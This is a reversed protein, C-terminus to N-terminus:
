KENRLHSNKKGYRFYIVMGIAMWVFLRIWTDLPLFAMMGFCTLIGMVPVFPVWPTKFSRPADPNTKRMILIGACVIVFALLTGISTMEGVVNIPVFAAFIAIFICFLINSKWPTLFRPHVESFIKPLLGDKSMSFFVRSQGLLDVLIVSTYGILIAIIVLQSLWNYPTNQIAIAVPAANNKFASYHALGTLVHAFLVFLITCVVLSGIIGVPMNKQPNKTEQAATAIIDFGLFVFFVVGAGRLIGSWGFEGFTGTNEPIYPHYNAPQIYKWGLAIFVLVVAVKLSVVVSSWLASGKTGRILILSMLIVVLAAPLNFYTQVVEGSALTVTEFPSHLIQPPLYIDYYSLLKTLYNSWSIAVTAAGVSFELVLDWGIIWAIMEGLTAYAYTYASGAVPIMASFEAYCLGAFGCGVAAVLFSLTVAPGANNAAALGTLSFLGAGIIVGLGLMILQFGNLSRKLTKEGSEESEEILRSISKIYKM